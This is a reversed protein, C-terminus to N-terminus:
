YAARWMEAPRGATKQTRKIAHGGQELAQLYKELQDASVHHQFVQISIDRRSMENPAIKRLTRFVKIVHPDSLETAFLHRASDQAYNWVALAAKLHKLTIKTSKDALAYIM